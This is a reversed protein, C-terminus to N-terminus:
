NEKQKFHFALLFEHLESMEGSNFEVGKIRLQELASDFAVGKYDLVNGLSKPMNQKLITKAWSPTNRAARYVFRRWYAIPRYPKQLSYAFYLSCVKNVTSEIEDKDAIENHLLARVIRKKFDEVEGIFDSSTGWEGTGIKRNVAASSMAPNEGSRLWVLSNVMKTPGLCAGIILLALEYAYGSSYHRGYASSFMTSWQQRRFVGYLLYPATSPDGNPFSSKLRELHDCYMEPVDESKEYVQHGFIEGDRHFFFLTRGVCGIIRQDSDLLDLCDRLGQKAYLEDDGLLAVYKTKVIESAHVLRENFGIPMHEYHVDAGMREILEQSAASKSGDLICLQAGSGVWYDIQRELYAPRNYAPIVITLDSLDNM